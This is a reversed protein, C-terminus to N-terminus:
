NTTNEVLIPIIEVKKKYDSPSLGTYRKFCKGFYSPDEIGVREAIQAISLGSDLLIKAQQMRYFSLYKFIGIGEIKKFIRGLYSPDYGVIEAIDQLRIEQHYHQHLYEKVQEVVKLKGFKEEPAQINLFKNIADKFTEMSYPKVLYDVTQCRMSQRMYEYDCFATTMIVKTDPYRQAIHHLIDMGSGDPLAIDLMVLDFPQQELMSLARQKSDCVSISPIEQPYCLRFLKALVRRELANDEVILARM